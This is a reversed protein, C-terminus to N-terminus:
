GEDLAVAYDDASWRKTNTVTFDLLRARSWKDIDVLVGSKV